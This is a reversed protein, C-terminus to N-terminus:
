AVRTDGRAELELGGFAAHRRQCHHEGMMASVHAHFCQALEGTGRAVADAGGFDGAGGAMEPELALGVAALRLLKGVQRQWEESVQTEDMKHHDLAEGWFFHEYAIRVFASAAYRRLPEGLIEGADHQGHLWARFEHLFGRRVMRHYGQPLAKVGGLPRRECPGHGCAERGRQQQRYQGKGKCGPHVGHRAASARRQGIGPRLHTGGCRERQEDQEQTGHAGNLM